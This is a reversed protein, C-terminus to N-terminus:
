WTVVIFVLLALMLELLNIKLVKKMEWRDFSERGNNIEKKERERNEKM